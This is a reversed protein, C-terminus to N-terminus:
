SRWRWRPRARLRCGCEANRRRVRRLLFSTEIFFALPKAGRRKQKQFQGLSAETLELFLFPSSCLGEGKKYFCAEQKSSHPASVSFAPAPKACPRPPPPTASASIGPISLPRVTCPPLAKRMSCRSSSIRTMTSRPVKRSTRASAAMSSPFVYFAGEPTLASSAPPRKLMDVVLDRRDKSVRAMEGLIDESGNLAEVAAAQSISSTNSTSQSQLKDMAKTLALPHGRLRNALRDHCLSELLREGDGHARESAAEVEVITAPKFNDYALKADIDDGFIWVNPRRLLM